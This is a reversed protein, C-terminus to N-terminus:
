TCRLLIPLTLFTYDQKIEFNQVSHVTSQLTNFKTHTRCEQHPVLRLMKYEIHICTKHLHFFFFNREM